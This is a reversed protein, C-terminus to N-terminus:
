EGCNGCCEKALEKQMELAKIATESAEKYKSLETCLNERHLIEKAEDITM